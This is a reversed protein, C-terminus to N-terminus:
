FPLATAAARAQLLRSHHVSLESGGGGVPGPQRTPSCTQASVGHQATVAGPWVSTICWGSSRCSKWLSSRLVPQCAVARRTPSSARDGPVVTPCVRGERLAPRQSWHIRQKTQSVVHGKALASEEQPFFRPHPSREGTSLSAFWQVGGCHGGAAQGTACTSALCAHSLVRVRSASMGRALPQASGPASGPPRRPRM